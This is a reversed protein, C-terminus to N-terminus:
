PLVVATPAARISTTADGLQQSANAGWCYPQGGSISCVHDSGAGISLASGLGAVLVPTESSGAIEGFCYLTGGTLLACTSSQGLAIEAVSSLGIVPTPTTSGGLQGNGLQGLNDYGWCTATGDALRACSHLGGMAVASATVIAGTRIAYAVSTESPLAGIQGTVNSGWCWVQGSGLRACTHSLGAALGTVNSVQTGSADVVFVPSVSDAELKNGLRGAQGSGWCQVKANVVACAHSGGVAITSASAALGVVQVPFASGVTSGDGLQGAGNPGWCWVSGDTKRACTGAGVYFGLGARLEVVDLLPSGGVTIVRGPALQGGFTGRGLEGRVNGGWCWVQGDSTLACTHFDGGTIAVFALRWGEIPGVVKPDCGSASAVVQYWRKSGDSPAGSDDFSATTGGAVGAFSAATADASRQWQRTLAGVARRGVASGSDPTYSADALRGRVKYTVNSAASVSAGSHGLRVWGRHDGQTVTIAGGNITGKPADVHTFTTESGFGTLWAQNGGTVQVSVDFGVLASAARRGSVGASAPGEGAGNLATVTYTAATGLPRTPAVWTLAVKDFDTTTAAVSSPAAWSASPATAGTDTYSLQQTGGVPTLKTGNRYIHYGTAGAVPGWEVLVADVRDSTARVNSPAGATPTTSGSVSASTRTQVGAGSAVLQYWRVAGNAPATTDDFSLTTAGALASFAESSTGASREWQVSLAGGVRRGTVSASAPGPGYATVTRVAYARTKGPTASPATASLAVKTAFDGQSASVTGFAVGALPADVDTWETALGGAVAVWVGGELQREYGTVPREARHGTVELSPASENGLGVAVVRYAYRQALPASVAPWTVRVGDTRDSSASAVPAAPLGAIATAADEFSRDVTSAVEVWSGSPACDALECRFVRYSVAHEVARWAVLVDSHRDTSASVETPSTVKPVCADEAAVHTALCGGCTADAGNSGAICLRGLSECALESCGIPPTKPVCDGGQLEFDALCGGCTADGGGAGPVCVRGLTDCSLQACTVPSRTDEEVDPGVETATDTDTTDSDTDSDIDSDGTDTDGITDTDSGSDGDNAATDGRGDEADGDTATEEDTAVRPPDPFCGLTGLALSV